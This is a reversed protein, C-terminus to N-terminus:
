PQSKRHSHEGSASPATAPGSTPRTSSGERVNVKTGPQLKDVGEVVIREGEQLGSKVVLQDGSSEGITVPRVEVTSDDKIAYVFTSDPGRQLGVSPMLVVDKLTEVQLRANVFQNPYLSEDENAFTAKLKVSGTSPDVQNDIATLTGTALKTKMDRDYADVQLKVGKRYQQLVRAVQEQTVSFVVTIPQTQAILALGNSDSSHIMNGADITKMGIRGSIPATIRAYDLQLRASDITAQDSKLSAQFQEVTAIQTDIQQQPIADGAARYRELEVQANKLASQDKAQQALALDLQVQFARPDIQAILKGEEVHQGETFFLKELQGDVRSRVTVANLPTVTGLGDIFLPLDARKIKYARVPIVGPGRQRSSDPGTAADTSNRSKWWWGGGVLVVVLLIIWFKKM